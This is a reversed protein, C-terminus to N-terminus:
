GSQLNKEADSSQESRIHRAAGKTMASMIAATFASLEPVTIFLEAMEETLLERREDPHMFNHMYIGQNALLTILWTVTDLAGLPNQEISDMLAGLEDLGGCRAAIEKMAKMTCIIEYEQGALTIYSSRDDM